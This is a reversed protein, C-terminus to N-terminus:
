CLWIEIKLPRIQSPASKHSLRSLHVQRNVPQPLPFTAKLPSISSFSAAYDFGFDVKPRGALSERFGPGGRQGAPVHREPCGHM